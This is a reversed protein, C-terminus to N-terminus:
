ACPYLPGRPKKFRNEELYDAEAEERTRAGAATRMWYLAQSMADTQDDRAARPFSAVEDIVSQAWTTDPAWIQGPSREGNFTRLGSFLHQVALLRSTKDGTPTVLLTRWKRRGYLRVIEEAVPRGNAKNEILLTDVKTGGDPFPENDVIGRWDGSCARAVRETLEHTPVRGVWAWLLIFQHERIDPLMFRGWIQIASPDNATKDTYAGDVSAVVLDLTPFTAREYLRWWDSQIIGGGRPTPIQQYQGAYAFAGVRLEQQRCWESPFREPWIPEGRRAELEAGTLKEGTEDDLGRPDEWGISTVCHRDPDYEAPLCFHCWGEPDQELVHACIDNHALRQGVIVEAGNIADSTRTSWTEDYERIQRELAVPSELEEGKHLDDLIRIIGHKGRSEPIGVSIRRGGETTEFCEANDQFASIKVRDGWRKQFWESRILNRAKKGDEQAKSANYAGCLFKVKPGRLLNFAGPRPKLTWTWVQWLSIISTKCHGPPVNVLLQKTDGETISELHQCYAELHWSPSFPAPDFHSWAMQVFTYLSRECEERDLALELASISIRGALVADLPNM